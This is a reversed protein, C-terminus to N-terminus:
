ANAKNCFAIQLMALTEEITEATIAESLFTLKLTEVTEIGLWSKFDL